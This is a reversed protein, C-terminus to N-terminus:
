LSKLMHRNTNQVEILRAM